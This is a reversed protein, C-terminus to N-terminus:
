RDRPYGDVPYQTYSAIARPFGNETAVFCLKIIAHFALQHYGAVLSDLSKYKGYVYLFNEHLLCRSLVM